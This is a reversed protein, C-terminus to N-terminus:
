NHANRHLQLRPGRARLYRRVYILFNFACVGIGLYVLLPEPMNPYVIQDLYNVLFGGHYPSIGAKSEFMQEAITLPCLVPATEVIIGWIISILHFATLLPRGRTWLAGFIVWLIWALHLALVITAATEL